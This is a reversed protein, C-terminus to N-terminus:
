YRAAKAVWLSTSGSWGIVTAEVTFHWEGTAPNCDRASLYSMVNKLAADPTDGTAEAGTLRTTM